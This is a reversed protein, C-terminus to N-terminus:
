GITLFGSVDLNTGDETESLVASRLHRLNALTEADAGSDPLSSFFSVAAPLDSYLLASVEDPVKGADLAATYAADDALRGSDARLKELGERSTSIELKGDDVVWLISFSEDAFKLQTAQIGAAQVKTVTGTGGLELLAGVREMLQRAKDEDDVSLVLDVTVPLGGTAEGYVGLAIEKKLLPLVDDDISFGLAKEVQARQQEFNPLASQVAELGKRVAEDLHAASLFFIPKAPLMDDLAPSYPELGFEKTEKVLADFRVGEDEASASIAVARLEGLSKTLGPPAGSEKLSREFAAQIADGAIYAVVGGNSDVSDLADQFESEDALTGSKRASDFRDIDAAKDAAVVWGDIQRTVAPDDGKKLLSELKDPQPSKTFFVAAPNESLELGAIGVEPGLAPKVDSEWDVGEKRLSKTVEALLKDRSPFKNLLASAKQWQEGSPDSKVSVFFASSAPAFTATDPTAGGTTSASKGGCAVLTFALVVGLLGARWTSGRNVETPVTSVDAAPEKV